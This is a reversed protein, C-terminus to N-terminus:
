SPEWVRFGTTPKAVNNQIRKQLCAMWGALLLTWHNAEARLLGSVPKGHTSAFPHSGGATTHADRVKENYRKGLLVEPAMHLFSGTHVGMQIEARAICM